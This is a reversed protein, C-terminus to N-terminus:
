WSHEITQSGQEFTYVTSRKIKEINCVLKFVYNMEQM